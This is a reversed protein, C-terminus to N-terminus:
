PAELTLMPLANYFEPWPKPSDHWRCRLPKSPDCAEFSVQSANKRILENGYRAPVTQGPEIGLMRKTFVLGCRTPLTSRVVQFTVIEAPVRYKDCRERKVIVIEDYIHTM